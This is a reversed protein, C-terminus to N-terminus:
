RRAPPQTAHSASFASGCTEIEIEGWIKAGHQGAAPSRILSIFPLSYEKHPKDRLWAERNTELMQDWDRDMAVLSAM